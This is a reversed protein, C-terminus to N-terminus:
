GSLIRHWEIAKGEDRYNFGADHNFFGRQITNHLIHFLEVHSWSFAEFRNPSLLLPRKYIIADEFGAEYKVEVWGDVIADDKYREEYRANNHVVINRLRRANDVDGCTGPLRGIAPGSGVPNNRVTGFAWKLLTKYYSNSLGGTHGCDKLRQHIQRVAAEFVAVLNVLCMRSVVYEGVKAMECILEGPDYYREWEHTLKFAGQPLRQGLQNRDAVLVAARIYSQLGWLGQMADDATTFTKEIVGDRAM